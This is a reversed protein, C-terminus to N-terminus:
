SLSKLHDALRLAMAIMTITPNAFGGSPFVSGGTVYLNRIGHVRCHENVVGLKPDEHMRTTGMHHDDPDFPLAEASEFDFRVRGHGLRGLEAALFEFSQAVSQRDITNTKFDLRLKRMGTYDKEALLSVRSDRNPSQEAVSVVHFADSTEGAGYFSSFRENIKAFRKLDEPLEETRSRWLAIGHNLLGLKRQTEAKIGIYSFRPNFLRDTITKTEPGALAVAGLGGSPAHSMFYRGVLDSHNGLGASIEANSNLLFRPNELGGTALVFNQAKIRFTGGDSAMVNLVRAASRHENLSLETANSELFVSINQSDILEKRYETGFRTPPSFRFLLASLQCQADVLDRSAPGDAFFRKLQVIDAAKDYYPELTSRTFPWAVSNPVWARKEFDIEDFPRCLGGWHNTTGGFMRQRTRTLYDDSVGSAEGSYLAHNKESYEFGGSELLAVKLNLNDFTRAITIGCAGAGIICLDVEFESDPEISNHEILM